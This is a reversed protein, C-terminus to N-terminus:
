LGHKVLVMQQAQLGKCPLNRNCVVYFRPSQLYYGRCSSILIHDIVASGRPSGYSYDKSCLSKCQYFAPVMDAILVYILHSIGYQPMPDYQIELCLPFSHCSIIGDFM